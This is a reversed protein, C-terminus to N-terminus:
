ARLYEKVSIGRPVVNGPTDVEGAVGAHDGSDDVEPEIELALVGLLIPEQSLRSETSSIRVQDVSELILCILLVHVESINILYRQYNAQSRYIHCNPTIHIIKVTKKPELAIIYISASIPRTTKPPVTM